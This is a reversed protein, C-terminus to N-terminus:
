AEGVNDQGPVQEWLIVAPKGTIGVLIHEMIRTARDELWALNNEPGTVAIRFHGDSRGALMTHQLRELFEKSSNDIKVQELARAWIEQDKNKSISSDDRDKLEKKLNFSAPPSPIFPSTSKSGWDSDDEPVPTSEGGTGSYGGYTPTDRWPISYSTTKGETHEAVIYGDTELRAIASVIPKRSLGTLEQIYTLSLKRRKHHYGVIQRLMVLLVKLEAHSLHKIHEDLLDNPV